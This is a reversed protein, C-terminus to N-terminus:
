VHHRPAATTTGTVSLGTPHTDTRVFQHRRVEGVRRYGIEEFLSDTAPRDLTGYYLCREAGAGLAHRSAAAAMARGYGQRRLEPPTYVTGIKAVGYLPRSVTAMAVPRGGVEWLLAGDPEGEVDWDRLLPLDDAGAPRLEGTAYVTGALAEASDLTWVGYAHELVPRAHTREQWLTAFADVTPQPGYVGPLDPRVEALLGALAGVATDSMLGVHLPGPPRHVAVGTVAGGDVAVAWRDDPSQGIVPTRLAQDLVTALPHHAVPDARLLEAIRTSYERADSMLEAHM